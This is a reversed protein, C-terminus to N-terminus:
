VEGEETFQEFVNKIEEVSFPMGDYKTVKKSHDLNAFTKLLSAFQSTFNNEIIVVKKAMDFYKKLDRPLPYLQVLHLVAINEFSQAAEKVIEKTSGFCVALVEYGSNGTLEPTYYDKFNSMKKMRKEVMMKRMEFDETIRGSEDHEDSDVCVLGEGWGPIGRPSIGKQTLKYRLYDSDTKILYNEINEPLPVNEINYIMDMLYQDTLILAPIQYKDAIQFAKWSCLFAEELNGPAYIVRPFEGHGAYLAFMLDAQETRTPLGTAPGPRQALHVVIPSEIMGALSLGEIMLAFGGGSTTVMARGGAYWAGLAMNIASIEDETQEVILDFNDSLKALQVLVGTSPSMPYSSIFNCGGALAGFAVAEAGSLLFQDCIQKNQKLKTISLKKKSALGNEYGSKVAELNQFIVEKSKKSFYQKVINLTNELDVGLLATAFGIMVSNAYIKNGLASATKLLPIRLVKLTDDIGPFEEDVVLISDSSLRNSIRKLHSVDNSLFLAFDAKQKFARVPIDSVRILTSNSGGRVRSMYEKYSFVNLGAKKFIKPLLVEVTQIGQGAEGAIIFLLPM